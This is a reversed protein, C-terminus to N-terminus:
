VMVINIPNAVWQSTANIQLDEGADPCPCSLYCITKFYKTITCDSAKCTIDVLVDVTDCEIDTQKSMSHSSHSGSPNSGGGPHDSPGPPPGGPVKLTITFVPECQGTEAQNPYDRQVTLDFTQAQQVQTKVNTAYCGFSPPPPVPAPPIIPPIPPVLLHCSSVLSESPKFIPPVVPVCPLRLPFALDM